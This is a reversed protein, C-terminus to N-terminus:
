DWARGLVWLLWLALMGVISAAVYGALESWRFDPGWM